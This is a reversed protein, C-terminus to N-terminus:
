EMEKKIGNDIIFEGHNRKFCNRCMKKGNVIYTEHSDTNWRLGLEKNCYTCMGFCITQSSDLPSPIFIHTYKNM